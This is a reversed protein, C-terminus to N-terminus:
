YLEKIWVNFCYNKLKEDLLFAASIHAHGKTTIATGCVVKM